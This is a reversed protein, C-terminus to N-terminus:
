QAVSHGTGSTGRYKETMLARKKFDNVAGHRALRGSSKRCNLGHSDDTNVVEGCVCRHEACVPTGIRIATASRLSQDDM